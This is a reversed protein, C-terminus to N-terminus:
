NSSVFLNHFYMNQFDPDPFIERDGLFITILSVWKVSLDM